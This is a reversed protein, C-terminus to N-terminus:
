CKTHKASVNKSSNAQKSKVNKFYAYLIPTKKLFIKLYHNSCMDAGRSYLITKIVVVSTGINIIAKKAGMTLGLLYDILLMKNGACGWQAVCPDFNTLFNCFRDVCALFLTCFAVRYNNGNNNNNDILWMM